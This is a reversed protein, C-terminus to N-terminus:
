PGNLKKLCEPCVSYIVHLPEKALATQKALSDVEQWHNSGIESLCNCISCRIYVKKAPGKKGKHPSLLSSAAPSDQPLPNFSVKQPLPEIRLQEHSVKLWGNEGPSVTMQMYRKAEPTDCRYPRFLSQPIVRVTDIMAAIYMRTVDDCIFEFLSKGIVSKSSARESWSKSDMASDWSADVQRIINNEDIWYSLKNSM